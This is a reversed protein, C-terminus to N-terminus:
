DSEREPGDCMDEELIISKLDEDAVRKERKLCEPCLGLFELKHGFIGYRTLNGLAKELNEITNDSPKIDADTIKGCRTCIVHYHERLNGDFRMQSFHPELKRILGAASLVDLNRYVTGMSVKPIRKRVKEYVEDATLHGMAGQVEELIIQRQHTM